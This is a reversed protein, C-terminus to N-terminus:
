ANSYGFTSIAPSTSCNGHLSSARYRAGHVDDQQHDHRIDRGNRWTWAWGFRWLRDARNAMANVVSEFVDPPLTPVARDMM